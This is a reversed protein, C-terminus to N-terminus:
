NAKNRMPCNNCKHGTHFQKCRSCADLLCNAVTHAYNFCNFCFDESASIKNVTKALKIGEAHQSEDENQLYMRTQIFTKKDLKCQKIADMLRDPLMKIKLPNSGNTTLLALKKEDSVKAINCEREFRIIWESLYDDNKMTWGLLNLFLGSESASDMTGDGYNTKAFLWFRYLDGIYESYVIGLSESIRNSIVSAINMNMSKIDDNHEICMKREELRLRRNEQSMAADPMNPVVLPIYEEDYVPLGNRNGADENGIPWSTNLYRFGKDDTKAHVESLVERSFKRWDHKNGNYKHSVFYDTASNDTAKFKNKSM